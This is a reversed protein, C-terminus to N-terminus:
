ESLLSRDNSRFTLNLRFFVTKKETSHKVALMQWGATSTFTVQNLYLAGMLLREAEKIPYPLAYM